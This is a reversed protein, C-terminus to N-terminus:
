VFVKNIVNQIFLIENTQVRNFPRLEDYKKLVVKDRELLVSRWWNQRERFNTKNWLTVLFSKETWIPVSTYRLHCVFYVFLFFIQSCITLYAIIETVHPLIIKTVLTKRWSQWQDKVINRGLSPNFIILYWLQYWKLMIDYWFLLKLSAKVLPFSVPILINFALPDIKLFILMENRTWKQRPLYLKLRLVKQVNRIYDYCKLWLIRQIEETM